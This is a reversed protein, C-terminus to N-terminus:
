GDICLQCLVLDDVPIQQSEGSGFNRCHADGNRVSLVTWLNSLPGNRLVVRSHRRVKASYIPTMEPLHSEFVLGFKKEKTIRNTEVRLRERLAEDEIQTILDDIAAM